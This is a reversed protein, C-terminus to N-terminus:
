KTLYKCAGLIHSCPKLLSGAKCECLFVLTHNQYKAIVEFNGVKLRISYDTESILTTHEALYKAKVFMVRRM